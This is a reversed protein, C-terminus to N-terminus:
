NGVNEDFPEKPITDIKGAAEWIQVFSNGKMSNELVSKLEDTLQPTKTSEPFQIRHCGNKCLVIQGFALHYLWLLSLYAFFRMIRGKRAPKRQHIQSISTCRCVSYFLLGWCSMSYRFKLEVVPKRCCYRSMSNRIQTSSPGVIVYRNSLSRLPTSFSDALYKAADSNASAM